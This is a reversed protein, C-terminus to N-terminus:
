RVPEHIALLFSVVDPHDEVACAGAVSREEEQCARGADACRAQGGLDGALRSRLAPHHEASSAELVVVLRVGRESADEPRRHGRRRRLVQELRGAVVSREEGRERGVEALLQPAHGCAVIEGGVLDALLEELRHV